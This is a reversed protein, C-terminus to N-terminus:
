EMGLCSPLTTDGNPGMHTPHKILSFSLSPCCLGEHYVTINNFYALNAAGAPFGVPLFGMNTLTAVKADRRNSESSSVPLHEDGRAAVGVPASLPELSAADVVFGGGGLRVSVSISSPFVHTAPEAPV